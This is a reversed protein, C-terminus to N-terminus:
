QMEGWRHRICPEHGILNPNPSPHPAVTTSLPRQRSRPARPSPSPPFFLHVWNSQGMVFHLSAGFKMVDCNCSSHCALILFRPAAAERMHLDPNERSIKYDSFM